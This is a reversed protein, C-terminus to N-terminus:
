IRDGGGRAPQSPPLRRRLGCPKDPAEAHMVFTLGALMMGAGAASFLVMGGTMASEPGGGSAIAALLGAGLLALGGIAECRRAQPRRRQLRSESRGRPFPLVTGDAREWAQRRANRMGGARAQCM